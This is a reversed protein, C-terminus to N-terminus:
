VVLASVVVWVPQVAVVLSTIQFKEVAVLPVECVRAVGNVTPALPAALLGRTTVRVFSALIVVAAGAAHILVNKEIGDNVPTVAVPPAAVDVGLGAVSEQVLQDASRPLVLRCNM